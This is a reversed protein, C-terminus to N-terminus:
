KINLDKADQYAAISHKGMKIYQEFKQFRKKDWLSWIALNIVQRLKLWKLDEKKM